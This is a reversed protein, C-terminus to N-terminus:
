LDGSKQVSSFIIDLACSDLDTFDALSSSRHASTVLMTIGAFMEILDIASSQEWVSKILVM